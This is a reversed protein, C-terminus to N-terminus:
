CVAEGEFRESLEHDGGIPRHLSVIRPKPFRHSACFHRRQSGNRIAIHSSFASFARESSLKATAGAIASWSPAASIPVMVPTPMSFRERVPSGASAIMKTMTTARSWNTSLSKAQSARTSLMPRPFRRTGAVVDPQDTVVIVTFGHQKLRRVAEGAGPLIELEDLSAPPYPRGDRVVARNIVGDCDLFVARAM